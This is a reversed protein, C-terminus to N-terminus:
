VAQLVKLEQRKQGELPERYVTVKFLMGSPGQAGAEKPRTFTVTFQQRSFVYLLSAHLSQM